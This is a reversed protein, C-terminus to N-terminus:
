RLEGHIKDTLFNIIDQVTTDGTLVLEDDLEIEFEEELTMVFDVQDLSDFDMEKLSINTDNAYIGHSDYLTELVTEKIDM